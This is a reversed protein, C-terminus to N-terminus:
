LDDLRTWKRPMASHGLKAACLSIFLNSSAFVARGTISTSASGTDTSADYSRPLIFLMLDLLVAAHTALYSRPAVHLTTVFARDLM